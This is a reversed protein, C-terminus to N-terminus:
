NLNDSANDTQNIVASIIQEETKPPLYGCPTSLNMIIKDGSKFFESDMIVNPTETYIIYQEGFAKQILDTNINIHIHSSFTVNGSVANIKNIESCLQQVKIGSFSAHSAAENYAKSVNKAYENFTQSSSTNTDFMIISTYDAATDFLESATLSRNLIPINLVFHSKKTVESIAQSFLALLIEETKCGTNKAIRDIRKCRENDIIGIHSKYVTPLSSSPAKVMDEFPLAGFTKVKESWYARDSKKTSRLVPPHSINGYPLFNEPLKPLISEKECYVAAMDRIFIQVSTVDFAVCDAEIVTIVSDKTKILHLAAYEGNEIDMLRNKLNNIYIDAQHEDEAIVSHFFREPTNSESFYVSGDQMIRTHLVAHREFLMCWAKKLKDEDISKSKYGIIIHCSVGCLSEKKQRGILFAYQVDNLFYIDNM